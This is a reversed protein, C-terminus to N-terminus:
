NYLFYFGVYEGFSEIRLRKNGVSYQFTNNFLTMNRSPVYTCNRTCNFLIFSNQTIANPEYFLLNQELTSSTFNLVLVDFSINTPVSDIDVTHNRYHKIYMNQLGDPMNFEYTMRNGIGQFYIKEINSMLNTMILDIQKKDFNEKSGLIFNFFLMSILFIFLLSIGFIILFEMSSQSKKEM